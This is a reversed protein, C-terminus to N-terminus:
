CRASGCPRRDGPDERAPVADAPGPPQPWWRRYRVTGADTTAARDSTRAAAPRSRRSGRWTRARRSASRSRRVSARAPRARRGCRGSGCAGRQGCAIEDAVAGFRVDIVIGEEFGDLPKLRPVPQRGVPDDAEARDIGEVHRGLRPQGRHDEVQAAEVRLRAIPAVVIHHDIESGGLELQDLAAGDRRGVIDDDAAPIPRRRFDCLAILRM